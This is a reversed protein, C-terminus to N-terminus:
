CVYSQRGTSWTITPSTTAWVHDVLSGILPYSSRRIYYLRGVDDGEDALRLGIAGQALISNVRWRYFVQGPQTDFASYHYGCGSYSHVYGVLPRAVLDHLVEVVDYFLDRDDRLQECSLPWINEIGSERLITSNPEDERPGDVCDKGFRM